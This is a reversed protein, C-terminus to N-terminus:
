PCMGGTRARVRARRAWGRDPFNAGSIHIAAEPDPASIVIRSHVGYRGSLATPDPLVASRPARAAQRCPRVQRPRPRPAVPEPPPAQPGGGGLVHGGEAGQEAGQAPHGEGKSEGEPQDLVEPGAGRHRAPHEHGVRQTRVTHGMPPSCRRHCVVAASSRSTATPTATTSAVPNAREGKRMVRPTAVTMAPNAPPRRTTDPSAMM